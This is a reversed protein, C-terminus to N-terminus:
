FISPMFSKLQERITQHSDDKLRKCIDDVNEIDIEIKWVLSDLYRLPDSKYRKPVGEFDKPISNDNDTYVKLTNKVENLGKESSDLLDLMRTIQIDKGDAKEDFDDDAALSDGRLDNEPGSSLMKYGMGVSEGTPNHAIDDALEEVRQRKSRLKKGLIVIKDQLQSTNLPKGRLCDILQKSEYKDQDKEVLFKNAEGIKKNRLEENFARSHGLLLMKSIPFNKFHYSLARIGTVWLDFELEDKCTLDLSDEKKKNIKYHISFSLHELAPQPYKKFRKTKQGVQINSIKRLDIYSDGISKTGSFWMLKKLDDSLQFLRINPYQNDYHRLLNSGLRMYEIAKQAEIHRLPEVELVIKRWRDGLLNEYENKEDAKIITYKEGRGKINNVKTLDLPQGDEPSLLEFGSDIISDCACIVMERVDSLPTDEYWNVPFKLDNYAVIIRKQGQEIPGFESEVEQDDDSDHDLQIVDDTIGAFDILNNTRSPEDFNILDNGPDIKCEEKGEPTQGPTNSAFFADGLGGLANAHGSGANDEGEFNILDEM